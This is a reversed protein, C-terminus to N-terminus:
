NKVPWDCVYYYKSQLARAGNWWEFTSQVDICQDKYFWNMNEQYQNWALPLESIIIKKLVQFAPHSGGYKALGNQEPANINVAPGRGVATALEDYYGSHSHQFIKLFENDANPYHTNIYNIMLWSQKLHLEPLDPSIYFFDMMGANNFYYLFPSDRNTVFLKDDQIVLEPKELGCMIGTNSHDISCKQEIMWTYDSPQFLGSMTTASTKESWAEHYWKKYDEVGITLTTIKAGPNHQLYRYAMPRIWNVFEASRVPNRSYNVILLEDIPIQNKIFAQLICHSDRGGSYLLKLNKYKQRLQICRIRLLEDWSERPEQTWDLLDFAQEYLCFRAPQKTRAIAQWTDFQNTYRQQGVIWHPIQTIM